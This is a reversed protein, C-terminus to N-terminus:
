QVMRGSEQVDWSKITVVPRKRGKVTTFADPGQMISTNSDRRVALIEDHLTADWDNRDVQEAM